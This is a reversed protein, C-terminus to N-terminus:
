CTAPQPCNITERTLEVVLASKEDLTLDEIFFDAAYRLVGDPYIRFRTGGHSGPRLKNSLFAVGVQLFPLEADKLVKGLEVLFEPHTPTRSPRFRRRANSIFRVM